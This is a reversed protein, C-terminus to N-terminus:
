FYLVINNKYSNKIYEFLFTNDIININSNYFHM